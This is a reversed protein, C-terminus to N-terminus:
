FHLLENNNKVKKIDSLLLFYIDYNIMFSKTQTLIVVNYLTQSNRISSIRELQIKCTWTRASFVIHWLINKYNVEVM